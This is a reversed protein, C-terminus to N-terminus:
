CPSTKYLSVDKQPIFIEIRNPLFSWSFGKAQIRTRASALPMPKLESKPEPWQNMILLIFSMYLFVQKPLKLLTEFNIYAFRGACHIM